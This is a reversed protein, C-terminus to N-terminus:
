SASTQSYRKKRKMIPSIPIKIWVFPLMFLILAFNMEEIESLGRMLGNHDAAFPKFARFLLINLIFLIGLEIPPVPLRIKGVLNKLSTSFKITLPLFFLYSLFLYVFMKKATFYAKIGTKRERDKNYLHFMDLNHLNFEGQINRKELNDPTDFGLLRQGWSIEEGLLVFFLLGFLLFFIRKRYNGYYERDASNFFFDPQFFLLIFIFSTVMFLFAGTYEFVGDEKVLELFTQESFFLITSFTLLNILIIILFIIKNKQGLDGNRM